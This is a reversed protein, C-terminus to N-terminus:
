LKKTLISCQFSKESTIEHPSFNNRLEDDRTWVGQDYNGLWFSPQTITGMVFVLIPNKAEINKLYVRWTM